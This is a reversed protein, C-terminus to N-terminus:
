KTSFLLFLVIFFSMNIIQVAKRNPVDMIPL